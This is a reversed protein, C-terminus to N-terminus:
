GRGETMVRGVRDGNQDFPKVGVFVRQALREGRAPEEGGGGGVRLGAAAKGDGAPVLHEARQGAGIRLDAVRDGAGRLRMAQQFRERAPHALVDMGIAVVM